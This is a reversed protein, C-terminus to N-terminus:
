GFASREMPAVLNIRVVRFEPRPASLVGIHWDNSCSQLLRLPAQFPYACGFCRSLNFKWGSQLCHTAPEIGAVDM